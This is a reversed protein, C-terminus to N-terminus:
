LWPLGGHWACDLIEGFNGCGPGRQLGEAVRAWGVQAVRAWEMDEVVPAQVMRVAEAEGIGGPLLGFAGVEGRGAECGFWKGIGWLEGLGGFGPVVVMVWVLHLLVAGWWSVYLVGVRRRWGWAASKGRRFVFCVVVFAAQLVLVRLVTESNAPLTPLSPFRHPSTSAPAQSQPEPDTTPDTSNNTARDLQSTPTTQPKNTPLRSYLHTFSYSLWLALPHALLYILM